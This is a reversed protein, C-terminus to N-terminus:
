NKERPLSFYFTSGVGVESEAWIKGDHRHIIEASLYLGIGFGAIHLTHHNEVRYYRDFLKDIDKSLIGIGEDKISVQVENDSSTLNVEIRKGPSSYKIANSLLNSIVSGIKDRDANVLVPEYPFFHIPHLPTILKTEAIIENILENLNFSQKHVVIKGSELRSINLFGNIINNMKKAQNNAKKLAEAIFSEESNKIKAALLQVIATLSTLPTKLEHSVMGIFDNKRLEDIKQETIDQLTGSFRTAEQQANFLTKGKARVYRPKPHMPHVITYEIDFNGGSGYTMAEKIAALVRPRDQKAIIDMAKSLDMELHPPLGFWSKLRKNGVFKNTHPNLDWTGLEAAEIVFELEDKAHEIQQYAHVQRTTENCTVLVGSTKGTEDIVPSYSFTWYVDEMRGNRYIPILQDESWTAEGGELVQDIMPKIISWIEPWAKEASMGLISPHKGEQGLSPRYADNYFCILEPGWWLFMPFKSHLILSLTTKLSQPWQSPSGLVTRDWYFSRILQGMEGGDKLFQWNDTSVSNTKTM